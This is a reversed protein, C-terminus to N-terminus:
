LAKAPPPAAWSRILRGVLGGLLRGMIGDLWHADEYALIRLLSAASVFAASGVVAGAVLGYGDGLLQVCGWAVFGGLGSCCAIRALMGPQWDVGGVRRWASVIVPVGVTLQAADNAIAAGIAGHDPTLLFALGVDLASAAVGAVVLVALYGTGALLASSLNILPVLPFVLLLILLPTVAQDFEAGYALRIIAPGLALAAATTPLAVVLLLRLARSFGARIRETAGAGSLTSIAPMFVGTLGQFVVVPATAAAFAISYFGIQTETSYRQLFFLESRRWIILTLVVSVSTVAAYRVAARRHPEDLRPEAGLELSRRRSIITLVLLSVLIAGTEVAFMATIRGGLELVLVTVGTAVGSTLLGVVSVERWRQLGNLFSIPV